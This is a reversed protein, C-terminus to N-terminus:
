FPQFATATNVFDGLVYMFWAVGPCILKCIAVGALITVLPTVLIDVRTAKSVLKGLMLRWSALRRFRRPGATLALDVGNITFTSPWPPVRRLRRRGRLV